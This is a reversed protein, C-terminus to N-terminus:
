KHEVNVNNEIINNEKNNSEVGDEVVKTHEQSIDAKPDLKQDTSNEKDSENM